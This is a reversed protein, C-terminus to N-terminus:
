LTLGSTPLGLANSEAQPNGLPQGNNLTSPVKATNSTGLIADKYSGLEGRITIFVAFGLFLFVAIWSTQNM